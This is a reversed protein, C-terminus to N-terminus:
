KLIGPIELFILSGTVTCLIFSEAHPTIIGSESRIKSRNVSPEDMVLVTM